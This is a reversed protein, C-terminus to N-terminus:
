YGSNDGNRNQSAPNEIPGRKDPAVSIPARTVGIDPKNSQPPSSNRPPYYPSYAPGSDQVPVPPPPAAPPPPPPPPPAPASTLRPQAGTPSPLAASTPPAPAVGTSEEPSSADGRLVMPVIAFLLAGAAVAILAIAAPKRRYWPNPAPKFTLTSIPSGAPREIFTRAYSTERVDDWTDPEAFAQPPETWESEMDALDDEHPALDHALPIPETVPDHGNRGDDHDTWPGHHQAGYGADEDAPDAPSEDLDWGWLAEREAM